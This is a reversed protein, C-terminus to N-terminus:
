RTRRGDITETTDTVVLMHARQLEKFFDKPPAGMDIKTGSWLLARKSMEFRFADEDLRRWQVRRIKDLLGQWTPARDVQGNSWEVAPM